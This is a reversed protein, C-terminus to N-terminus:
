FVSNLGGGEGLILYPLSSPNNFAIRLAVNLYARKLREGLINFKSLISM